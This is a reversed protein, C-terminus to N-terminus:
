LSSSNTQRFSTPAAARRIATPNRAVLDAYCSVAIWGHTTLAKELTVGTALIVRPQGDTVASIQSALADRKYTEGFVIWQFISTEPRTHRRSAKIRFLLNLSFWIM